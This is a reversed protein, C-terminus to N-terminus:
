IINENVMYSAGGAVLSAIAVSAVARRRMKAAANKIDAATRTPRQKKVRKSTIVRVMRGPGAPSTVTAAAALTGDREPEPTPEPEQSPAALAAPPESAAPDNRDPEAREASVPQTLDAGNSAPQTAAPEVRAAHRMRRAIARHAPSCYLRRPGGDEPQEVIETCGPLACQQPGDTM